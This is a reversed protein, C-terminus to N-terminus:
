APTVEVRVDYFLAGSGMDAEAQSVLRNINRGDPSLKTWWVGPAVVTGPVVDDSIKAKLRVEGLDNFVRVSAEPAVARASADRPHLVVHPEHERRRLREVNVFTSNLFGHAPPSLCVLPYPADPLSAHAPPVFAPLPDYGDRGMRVSVFECKGSPTPFNGEEFPLASVSVRLHGEHLLREWSVSAFAPDRQALVFEELIQEDTQSFCADQFGLARAL